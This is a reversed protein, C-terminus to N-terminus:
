LAEEFAIRATEYRDLNEAAYADYDVGAVSMHLDSVLGWLTERLLSAAKMARYARLLTADTPRGFYGALLEQEADFPLGANGALNALDFLPTGFGGYEWDVFWLRSGDDLINAPLLDHHGFVIPMPVQSAEYIQAEALWRGLHPALRHGGSRLTAAYDRIVHFVWFFPPPGVLHEAMDCHATRILPLVRRWEARVDEATFPRAGLYATVTVGPEAHIIRPSLGALHAARATALERERFVHHFPLDVGLRVVVRRGSDDVVFNTNSLGGGLPAIELPGSWIPLARIRELVDAM